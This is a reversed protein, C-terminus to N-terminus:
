AQLGERWVQADALFLQLELNAVAIEANAVDIAVQITAKAGELALQQTGLFNSMLQGELAVGQAVAFRLDEIAIDVDKLYIDRALVGRQNQNNQRAEALKRRLVGDPESWGRSAFEEVAEQEARLAQQDITSFARDKMARAAAAPLGPQGDIMVGIRAKIKDLLASTYNQAEFGFTNQPIAVSFQPRVGTFPTLTPLAPIDLPLLVPLPPEDEIDTPMDIPDLAPPGEPPEAELPGPAQRVPVSPATATFTPPAVFNPNPGTDSTPPQPVAEMNPDFVMTPETPAVPRLVRWWNEDVNFHANVGIPSLRLDGLEQLADIAVGFAMQSNGWMNSMVQTVQGYVGDNGIVPCAM